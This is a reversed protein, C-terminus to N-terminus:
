VGVSVTWLPLEPVLLVTVTVRRVVDVVTVQEGDAITTACAVLQVANTFSVELAPM